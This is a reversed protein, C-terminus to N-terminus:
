MLNNMYRIMNRKSQIDAIEASLEIMYPALLDDISKLLSLKFQQDVRIFIFFTLKALNYPILYYTTPEPKELHVREFEFFEEYSTANTTLESSSSTTPVAAAAKIRNLRKQLSEDILFRAFQTSQNQSSTSNNNLVLERLYTYILSM